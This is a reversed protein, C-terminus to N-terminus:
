LGHIGRDPITLLYSAGEREREKKEAEELGGRKGSEKGRREEEKREM